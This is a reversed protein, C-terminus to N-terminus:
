EGDQNSRLTNSAIDAIQQAAKGLWEPDSPLNDAHGKILELAERLRVVEDPVTSSAAEKAREIIDHLEKARSHASDMAMLVQSMSFRSDVDIDPGFLEQLWDLMIATDDKALIAEIGRDIEEDSIALPAEDPVTRTIAEIAAAAQANWYAVAPSGAKYADVACGSQGALHKDHAECLKLAVTESNM